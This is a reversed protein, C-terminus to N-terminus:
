VTSTVESADRSAEENSRMRNSYVAAADFKITSVPVEAVDEALQKNLRIVILDFSIGAVMLDAASALYLFKGDASVSITILVATTLFTYMFVSEIIIAIVKNRLLITSQLLQRVQNSVANKDAVENAPSQGGRLLRYVITATAYINVAVSFAWFVSFLKASSSKTRAALYTMWICSLVVGGLWFLTPLIIMKYSQDYIKWCRYIMMADAVAIQLWVGLTLDVSPPGVAM